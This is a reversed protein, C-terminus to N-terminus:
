METAVHIPKREKRAPPQHSLLHRPLQAWVCTPGEAARVVGWRESLTQVLQLGMGGARLPDPPQPAIVGDRGPDEVELRFGDAWLHVRVVLDEGEPVGSHRVSNSVLESVLLLATELVSPAVHDALRQAIVSRAVGPAQAGIPIAVEAPEDGDMGGDPRSASRPHRRLRDNEARLTSNEAKLARAGREFTSLAEGLTDIAMAQRRCKAQLGEPVLPSGSDDSSAPTRGNASATQDSKM